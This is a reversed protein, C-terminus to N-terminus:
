VASAIISSFIEKNIRKRRVEDLKWGTKGLIDIHDQVTRELGNFLAMM